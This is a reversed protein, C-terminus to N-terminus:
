MITVIELAFDEDSILMIIVIFRLINLNLKTKELSIECNSLKQATVFTLIRSIVFILLYGILQINMIQM